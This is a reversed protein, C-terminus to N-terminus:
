LEKREFNFIGHGQCLESLRAIREEAKALRTETDLSAKLVRKIVEGDSDLPTIGGAHKKFASVRIVGDGSELTPRYEGNKLAGRPIVAEGHCVPYIADGIVLTSDLRPSFTIVTEESEDKENEVLEAYGHSIIYGLKM